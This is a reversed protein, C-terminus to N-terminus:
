PEHTISIRAANPSTQVVTTQRSADLSAILPWPTSSAPDDKYIATSTNNSTIAIIPEGPAQVNATEGSEVFFKQHVVNPDISYDTTWRSRGAYDINRNRPSYVGYMPIKPGYAIDVTARHAILGINLSRLGRGFEVM